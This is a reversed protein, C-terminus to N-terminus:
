QKGTKLHRPNIDAAKFAGFLLEIPAANYSHPGTWMCPVDFKKLVSLTAKSTHYSANDLLIVTNKRWGPRENDLKKVLYTFFLEIIKSNSNAQALSLYINGKSDLGAIMSIRPQVNLVALSNTTGPAQWKRRRFDSMGLWTEDVNLITRGSVLLRIYELAFQQRLVLNKASNAHISVHVVKKYRMGMDWKMVSCIEKEKFIQGADGPGTGFPPLGDSQSEELKKKIAKASDIFLDQENM